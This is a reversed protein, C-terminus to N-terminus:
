RKFLFYPKVLFFVLRARKGATKILHTHQHAPVTKTISALSRAYINYDLREYKKVLRIYEDLEVKTLASLSKVHRQPTIMLHDTVARFEWLDYPFTNRIVQMGKSQSVLAGDSLMCFPCPGQPAREYAKKGKRYRFM